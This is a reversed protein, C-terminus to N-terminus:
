PSVTVSLPAYRNSIARPRMQNSAGRIELIHPVPIRSYFNELREWAVSLADAFAVIRLRFDVPQSGTRREV